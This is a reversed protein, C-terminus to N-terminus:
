AWPSLQRNLTFSQDHRQFSSYQDNAAAGYGQKKEEGVSAIEADPSRRWWGDMRIDFRIGSEISTRVNAFATHTGSTPVTALLGSQDRDPWATPKKMTPPM